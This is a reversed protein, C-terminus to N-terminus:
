LRKQSDEPDNVNPYLFIDSKIAYVEADYAKKYFEVIEGLTM